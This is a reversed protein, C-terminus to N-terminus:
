KNQLPVVGGRGSNMVVADLWKGDVRVLFKGLVRGGENREIRFVIDNASITGPPPLVFPQAWVYVTCIAFLILGVFAFRKTM